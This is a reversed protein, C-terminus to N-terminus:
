GATLMYNTLEGDDIELIVGHLIGEAYESGPNFCMTKGIRCFGRSEHIHGHLSALPQYKELADRVASSGVHELEAGGKTPRLERDLRPAKDLETGRPPVHINFLAREIDQIDGALSDIKERLQEESVDRPANWPTINSNGLCLIEHQPDIRVVRNYCNMVAQSGVLAEEVGVPDDNGPMIYCKVETGALRKEAFGVWETLKEKMLQMFLSDVALKDEELDVMEKEDTVFPYEGALKIKEKHEELQDAKIPTAVGMFQSQYSGDKQRIIPVIIKGTLDGGLILTDAEYFKGANIFKRFCKDSGHLDSAYFIKMHAM